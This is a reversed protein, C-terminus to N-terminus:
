DSGNLKKGKKQKAQYLFVSVSNESVGLIDAIEGHSFGGSRLLAAQDVKGKVSQIAIIGLMRAIKEESRVPEPKAQKASAV